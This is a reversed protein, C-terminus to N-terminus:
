RGDSAGREDSEGAEAPPRGTVQANPTVYKHLNDIVKGIDIEMTNSLEIADRYERPTMRRITAYREAALRLDALEEAAILPVRKRYATPEYTCLQPMDNEPDADDIWCAWAIPTKMEIRENDDGLLGILRSARVATNTKAPRM